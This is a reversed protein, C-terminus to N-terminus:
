IAAEVLIRHSRGTHVHDIHDRATAPFVGTFPNIWARSGLLATDANQFNAYTDSCGVGLHSFDGPTCGFGCANLHDAGFAHKVWSQGIQEFRDDNGPGGSMRYLNHPIVPHTTEPIAFFKVPVDGANCATTSVALGVQTGESGFQGLGGMAGIDGTIIDPGSNLGESATQTEGPASNGSSNSLFLLLPLLFCSFM